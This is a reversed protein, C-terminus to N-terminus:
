NSVKREMFKALTPGLTVFFAVNAGTHVLMFFLAGPNLLASKIWAGYESSGAITAWFYGTSINTLIDYTPTAIVAASLFLLYTVGPKVSVKKNSMVMSVVSGAIAYVSEAAMLTILLPASAIGWPNIQGYFFWAVIGVTIGRRIGLTYGALFVMLDFLKINPLSSLLYNSVLILAVFVAPLLIERYLASPIFKPPLKYTSAQYMHIEGMFFDGAFLPINDERAECFSEYHELDSKGVLLGVTAHWHRFKVTKMSAISAHM